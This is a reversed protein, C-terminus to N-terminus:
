ENDQNRVSYKKRERFGKFKEPNESKEMRERNKEALAGLTKPKTSDMIPQQIASSSDRITYIGGCKPCKDPFDEFNVFTYHDSYQCEGCQYFRTIEIENYWPM